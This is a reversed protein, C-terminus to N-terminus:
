ASLTIIYDKEADLGLRSKVSLGEKAHKEVKCASKFTKPRRAMMTLPKTKWLLPHNSGGVWWTDGDTGGGIRPRVLAAANNNNNQAGAGPDGCGFPQDASQTDFADDFAGDALGGSDFVLEKEEAENAGSNFKM